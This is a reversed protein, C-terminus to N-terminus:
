VQGRLQHLKGETKIAPAHVMRVKHLDRVTRAGLVSMATRIAGALNQTGSNVSSPGYLIQELSASTGVNIRTGRPLSGHFSAMGWNYGLGPSEESQALPAGLMIADAGAALAKVMDGSTRMGGDTIIAVRRGSASQYADRAAAVELTASIQPMGIGLVERSTCEAGPGVGVLIAAAGAEMLAMAPEAAVTNGVIVPVPSQRCFHALDLSRGSHSHHRASTVTSQVVVVDAGEEIAATLLWPANLPTASVALRGGAEKVTRVSGRVFREDIPREYLKQLLGPANEPTAAAVTAYASAADEYRGHLGELNLVALGGQRHFEVAFRPDVVGDMAAALIPLDFSHTGLNWSLTCLEPDITEMHPVLAVDDFGYSYPLSITSTELMTELM